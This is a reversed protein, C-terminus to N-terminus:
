IKDNDDQPANRIKEAMAEIQAKDYNEKAKEEINKKASYYDEVLIIVGLTIFCDALNFVPFSYDQYYFHIFDFVAGRFSRDILNGIAGGIVFSYGAFGGITKSSMMLYYLYCVIITNTILFVINSYQYYDRMLGFSIGYNWTYVM